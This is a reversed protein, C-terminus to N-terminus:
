LEERRRKAFMAMAALGGVVIVYFPMYIIVNNTIPLTGSISTFEPSTYLDDWINALIISFIVALVIVIFYFILFVPHGGFIYSLVIIVISFGIFLTFVIYDSVNSTINMGSEMIETVNINTHNFSDNIAEDYIFAETVNKNVFVTIFVCIGVIFLVIIMVMIDRVQGKNKEIM